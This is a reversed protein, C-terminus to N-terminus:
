SSCGTASSRPPARSGRSGRAAPLPQDGRLRRTAGPRRLPRRPRRRLPRAHHVRLEADAVAVRPRVALPELSVVHSDCLVPDDIIAHFYLFPVHRTAFQDAATAAQTGDLANIAPHGCVARERAPDAGMSQAYARWTFGAQQLQSAVTPVGAPYVCGVGSAQGNAGVVGTRPLFDAFIPCDVQTLVNAAQGSVMAIYNGLSAHATAHYRPVFAGAATM